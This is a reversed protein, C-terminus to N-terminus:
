CGMAKTRMSRISQVSKSAKKEREWERKVIYTFRKTHILSHMLIKQTYSRCVWCIPHEAGIEEKCHINYVRIPVSSSLLFFNFVFLRHMLTSHFRLVWRFFTLFFSFLSCFFFANFWQCGNLFFFWKCRIGICDCDFPFPKQHLVYIAKHGDAKRILICFIWLIQYHCYNFHFPLNPLWVSRNMPKTTQM